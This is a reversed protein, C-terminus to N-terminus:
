PTPTETFGAREVGLQQRFEEELEQFLPTMENAMIRHIEGWKEVSDRRNNEDGDVQLAFDWAVKMLREVFKAIQAALHRPIYFQHTRFYEDIEMLAKSAAMRREDRTGMAEYEVISTYMAVAMRLQHLRQYTGAIAEAAREHLNSFRVHREAAAIQLEARLRELSQSNEAALRVRHSELKLDYEHKISNKLHETVVNRTLWVIAGVVATSVVSSSLLVTAFEGVTV